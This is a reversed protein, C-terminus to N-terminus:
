EIDVIVVRNINNENFLQEESGKPIITIRSEDIGNEVLFNKITEARLNSLQKNWEKSGTEADSYGTLIINSNSNKINEIFTLLTAKSTELLTNKGINFGIATKSIKNIVMERNMLSDREHNLVEIVKLSHKLKHVACKNVNNSEELLKRTKALQRVIEDMEEQTFKKQCIVFNHTNKKNKFRYTLGVELTVFSRNSSFKCNSNTEFGENTLAYTISPRVNFQLADNKHFNWNFQVGGKGSLNNTVFKGYTHFWGIGVFPVVEIVDSKGKYSHIMNNVNFLTNVTVNAHSFFTSYNGIGFDGDIEVGVSPILYKGVRVSSSGRLSEIFNDHGHKKPNLPGFTGVNLSVYTDELLTSPLVTQAFMSINVFCVILFVLIKKM